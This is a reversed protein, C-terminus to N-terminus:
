ELELICGSLTLYQGEEVTIYRSGEFADNAIISSITHRSDSAVEIYGYGTFSSESATVKYEGAPLHVGIKYMGEGSTDVNPAESIPIAYCSTLKLYEGDNVTIISNTTFNDNAIISSLTGSSDSNLEFYSSGLFNDESFIIYEGAPMDSGVKYMGSKYITYQPTVEVVNEHSETTGQLETNVPTQQNEINAPTSAANDNSVTRSDSMILFLISIICIVAIAICVGAFILNAKKTHGNSIKVGCQPCTLATEAVEKGCEKCRILAM